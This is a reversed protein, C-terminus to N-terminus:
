RHNSQHHDKEDTKPANSLIVMIASLRLIISPTILGIETANLHTLGGLTLLILVGVMVTANIQIIDNKHLGSLLRQRGKKWVYYLPLATGLTTGLLIAFVHGPTLSQRVNEILSPPKLVEINFSHHSPHPAGIM